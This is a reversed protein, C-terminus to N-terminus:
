PVNDFNPEPENARQPRSPAPRSPAAPNPRRPSQPQRPVAPAASRFRLGGVVKGRMSVTPDLYLCVQKGNWEVTDDGIMASLLDINIPKLVMPKEIEEFEILWCIDEPQGEMALNEKYVDGRITLIIGSMQEEATDGLDDRKVFRSEKMSSTKM